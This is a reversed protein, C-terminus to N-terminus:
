EVVWGVRKNGHNGGSLFPTEKGEVPSQHVVRERGVQLRVWNIHRDGYKDRAIVPQDGHNRKTPSRPPPAPPWAWGTQSAMRVSSLHYYIIM